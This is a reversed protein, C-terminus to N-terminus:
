SNQLVLEFYNAFWEQLCKIPGGVPHSIIFRTAGDPDMEISCLHLKGPTMGFDDCDKICRCVATTKFM